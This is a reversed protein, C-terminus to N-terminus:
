KLTLLEYINGKLSTNIRNFLPKLPLFFIEEIFLNFQYLYFLVLDTIGMTDTTDTAATTATPVIDTIATTTIETIHATTHM